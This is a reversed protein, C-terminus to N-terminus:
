LLVIQLLVSLAAIGILAYNGWKKQTATPANIGKGFPIDRYLLLGTLALAALTLIPLLWLAGQGEFPIINPPPLNGSNQGQTTTAQAILTANLALSFNPVGSCNSFTSIRACSFTVNAYPLLLFALLAVLAGIGTILYGRNQQQKIRDM